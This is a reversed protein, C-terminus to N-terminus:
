ASPPPVRDKRVVFPMDVKTMDAEQEAPRTECLLGFYRTELRDKTIKIVRDKLAKMLGLQNLIYVAAGAAGGLLVHAKAGAIEGAIAAAKAEAIAGLTRTTQRMGFTLPSSEDTAIIAIFDAALHLRDETDAALIKHDEAFTAINKWSSEELRGLGCEVALDEAVDLISTYYAQKVLEKTAKVASMSTATLGLIKARLCHATVENRAQNIIEETGEPVFQGRHRMERIGLLLTGRRDQCTPLLDRLVQNSRAYEGLRDLLQTGRDFEKEPVKADQVAASLERLAQIDSDIQDDGLKTGTRVAEILERPEMDPKQGDLKPNIPTWVSWIQRPTELDNIVAEIM